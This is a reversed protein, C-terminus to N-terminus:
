GEHDNQLRVCAESETSDSSYRQCHEMGFLDTHPALVISCLLCGTMINEGAFSPFNTRHYPHACLECHCRSIWDGYKTITITRLGTLGFACVDPLLNQNLFSTSSSRTWSNLFTPSSSRLRLSPCTFLDSNWGCVDAVKRLAWSVGIAFADVRRTQLARTFLRM